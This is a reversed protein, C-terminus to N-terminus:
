TQQEPSPSKAAEKEDKDEQELSPTSVPIERIRERMEKLIKDDEAPDYAIRTKDDNMEQVLTRLKRVEPTENEPNDSESTPMMRELEALPPLDQLGSLGFLELFDRTTKYLIPRGPLESRGSMEILKRDLLTRMFYSCDVGRIRDLDEKMVPQNYSIIALCEMAGRSLRQVQVRALRKAIASQSLKTRFQYGGAVEALEFGHNKEQYRAQVAEIATKLKAADQGEGLIEQLRKFSISKESLFILTEVHAEIEEASLDAASFDEAEPLDEEPPEEPLIGGEETADDMIAADQENQADEIEFKKFGFPDEVYNVTEETKKKTM